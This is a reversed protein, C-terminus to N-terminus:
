IRIEGDTRISRQTKKGCVLGERLVDLDKEIEGYDGLQNELDEIKERWAKENVEAEEKSALAAKLEQDFSQRSLELADEAEKIQLELDRGFAAYETNQRNLREDFEAKLANKEKEANELARTLDSVKGDVDKLQQTESRSVAINAFELKQKLDAIEDTLTKNAEEFQQIEDKIRKSDAERLEVERELDAEAKRQYTDFEIELNKRSSTVNELEILLTDREERFKEAETELSRKSELQETLNRIELAMARQEVRLEEKESSAKEKLEEFQMELSDKLDKVSALEDEIVKKEKNAMESAESLKSELARANSAYESNKEELSQIEDLKKGEISKMERVLEEIRKEIELKQASFSESAKVLRSEAEMLKSETEAQASLAANLKEEQTLSALESSSQLRELAETADAARTTAMEAENELKAVRQNFAIIELRLKRDKRSLTDIEERSKSEITKLANMADEKTSIADEIEAANVALESKLKEIESQLIEESKMKESLRRELDSIEGRESEERLSNEEKLGKLSAREDQLEKEMQTIVIKM